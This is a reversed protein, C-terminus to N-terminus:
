FLGRLVELSKPKKFGQLHVEYYLILFDIFANRKEKNLRIQTYSEQHLSKLLSVNDGSFCYNSTPKLQFEGEVLNFYPFEDLSFDPYFGLFKSLQLMFNLHFNQYNEEKELQLIQDKLFSFLGEDKSEEIIAQSLIEAIFYLMSTKGFDMYLQNLVETPKAETIFQLNRNERYNFNLDLITLVQFYSPRFKKSKSKRIGKLLFSCIGFEKTYTKVILDAEGFNIKSLVIAQSTTQM